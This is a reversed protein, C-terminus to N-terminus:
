RLTPLLVFSSKFEASINGYLPLIVSVDYNGRKAIAKPLSGMVDALGGTAIFPAAESGVYVIKRKFSVKIEPLTGAKKASTRTNKVTKSTKTSM